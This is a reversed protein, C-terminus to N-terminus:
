ARERSDDRTQQTHIWVCCSSGRGSTTSALISAVTPNTHLACKGTPADPRRQHDGITRGTSSSTVTLPHLTAPTNNSSTIRMAASQGEPGHSRNADTLFTNVMGSSVTTPLVCLVGYVDDTRIKKPPTAGTRNRKGHNPICYEQNVICHGGTSLWTTPGQHRLCWCLRHDSPTLHLPNTRTDALTSRNPSLQQRVALM